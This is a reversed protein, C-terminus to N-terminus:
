KHSLYLAVLNILISICTSIITGAKILMAKSEDMRLNARSADAEVKSIRDTTHRFDEDIMIFKTNNKELVSMLTDLKTEVRTLRELLQLILKDEQTIPDM